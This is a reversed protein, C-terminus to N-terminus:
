NTKLPGVKPILDKKKPRKPLKIRNYNKPLEARVEQMISFQLEAGGEFSRIERLYAYYEKNEEISVKVAADYEGWLKEAEEITKFETKSLNAKTWALYDRNEKSIDILEVDPTIRYFFVQAISDAILHSKSKRMQIYLKKFTNYRVEQPVTDKPKHKIETTQATSYISTALLLLILFLQKIM